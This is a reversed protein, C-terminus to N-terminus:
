RSGHGALAAPRSIYGWDRRYERFALVAWLLLAVTGALQGLAARGCSALIFIVALLGLSRALLHGQRAFLPIQAVGSFLCVALGCSILHAMLYAVSIAPLGLIPLLARFLLAYAAYFSMGIAFWLKWGSLAFITASLLLTLARFFDGVAQYRLLPAAGTFAPSYAALILFKGYLITGASMATSILVTLRLASTFEARARTRDRMGSLTPVLYTSVFGFALATSLQSLAYVAQYLGFHRVIVSRFALVLVRDSIAMIGGTIGIAVIFRLLQPDFRREEAQFQLGAGHRRLLLWGSAACGCASVALLGYTAGSLGFRWVLWLYLLMGGASSAATLGIQGRLDRMGILVGMAIDSLAQLPLGLAAISLLWDYRGDGLVLKSIRTSFFVALGALLASVPLLVASISWVARRVGADNGSAELEAVCRTVGAGTSLISIQVLGRYFGEVQGLAGVGATGLLLAAAKGRALAFMATMGSILATGAAFKLLPPITIRASL